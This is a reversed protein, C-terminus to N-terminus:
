IVSLLPRSLQLIILTESLVLVRCLGVHVLVATALWMGVSCRLLKMSVLDSVTM